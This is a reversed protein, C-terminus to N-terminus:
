ECSFLTFPCDCCLSLSLSLPALPARRSRPTEGRCANLFLAFMSVAHLVHRVWSRYTGRAKFAFRELMLTTSAATSGFISRAEAPHFLRVLLTRSLLVSRADHAYRKSQRRFNHENMGGRARQKRKASAHRRADAAVADAGGGDGSRSCAVLGTRSIVAPVGRAVNALRCLARVSGCTSLRASCPRRRPRTCECVRRAEAKRRPIPWRVVTPVLPLAILAASNAQDVVIHLNYICQCSCVYARVVM